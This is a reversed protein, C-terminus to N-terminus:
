SVFFQADELWNFMSRPCNIGERSVNNLTLKASKCCLIRMVWSLLSDCLSFSVDPKKTVRSNSNLQQRQVRQSGMAERDKVTEKLKSLSIDVSDTIGDLWRMRQWGRPRKGEIKGLVPTKELSNARGMLHGFYQHDIKLIYNLPTLYMWRTTGDDGDMELVKEDQLLSVRNRSCFSRWEWRWGKAVAM